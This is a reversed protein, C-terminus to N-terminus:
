GYRKMASGPRSDGFAVQDTNQNWKLHSKLRKDQHATYLDTSLAYWHRSFHIMQAACLFILAIYLM